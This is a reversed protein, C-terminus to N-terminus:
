PNIAPASALQRFRPTERDSFGGPTKIIFFAAVDERVALEYGKEPGLVMLATALADAHAASPHLVSVSALTHSIPSGTVPDITHSYRQGDKEFYNRYDGSTALGLNRLEIISHVSRVGELPQEIAIRWPLGRANKGKGRLEGGVEVLYNGIGARDLEEGVRDVAYGKAVSSLDIYLGPLDKKIGPPSDRVHLHRYGVRALTERIAAKSPPTTVSPDPGFGWLNVLPGVTIDYAGASIASIRLAEHVVAVLEQSAEVWATTRSDNFRSLESEKIYTSMRGDVEDLVAQLRTAFSDAAFKEPPNAVKVSYTTGMTRGNFETLKVAPAPTEACGGILTLAITVLLAKISLRYVPTKTPPPTSPAQFM